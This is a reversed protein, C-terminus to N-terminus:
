ASRVPVSAVFRRLQHAIARAGHPSMTITYHNTAPVRISELPGRRTRLASVRDAPYLPTAENQMGREALLLVTPVDIEGIARRMSENMLMDRADAHVADANVKSRMEGDPGHLDHDAYADLGQLDTSTDVFAPHARWFARYEEQSAFRRDLRELAPGVIARLMEDIDADPPPPEGLAPGGDVLVVAVARTPARTAVATAVFGGMSHGVIVAHPADADDLVALLDTAHQAIGYPWPLGGSDGRGRLDPAILTMEGAVHEAVAAWALHSATLGHVAM